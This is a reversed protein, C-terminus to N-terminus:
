KCCNQEPQYVSQLKSLAVNWCVSKDSYVVDCTFEDSSMNINQKDPVAIAPSATCFSDASSLETSASVSRFTCSLRLNVHSYLNCIVYYMIIVRRLHSRYLRLSLPIACLTCRGNNSLIWRVVCEARRNLSRDIVLGDSSTEVRWFQM